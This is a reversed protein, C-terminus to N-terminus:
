PELTNGFAETTPASASGSAPPTPLEAQASRRAMFVGVLWAAGALFTFYLGVAALNGANNLDYLAVLFTVAAAVLQGIWGLRRRWLLVLGVVGTILTVIGDGGDSVGSRSYGLISVWPLFASVVTVIAAAVMINRARQM